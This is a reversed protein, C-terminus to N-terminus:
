PLWNRQNDIEDQIADLEAEIANAEPWDRAENADDLYGLLVDMQAELIEIEARTDAVRSPSTWNM